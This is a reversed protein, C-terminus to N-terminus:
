HQYLLSSQTTNRVRFQLLDKLLIMPDSKFPKMFHPNKHRVLIISRISKKLSDVDINRIFQIYCFNLETSLNMNSMKSTM